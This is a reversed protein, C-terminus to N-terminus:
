AQVNLPAVLKSQSDMMANLADDAHKQANLAWSVPVAVGAGTMEKTWKTLWDGDITAHQGNPAANNVLTGALQWLANDVGGTKPDVGNSASHGLDDYVGWGSGEVVLNYGTTDHFFKKQGDTVNSVLQPQFGSKEVAAARVHDAILMEAPNAWPGKHSAAMQPTGQADTQATGDANLAFMASMTEPTMLSSWNVLGNTFLPKAGSTPNATTEAPAATADPPAVAQAANLQSLIGSAASNIQM